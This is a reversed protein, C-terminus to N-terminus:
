FEGEVVNDRSMPLQIARPPELTAGAHRQSPTLLCDPHVFKFRHHQCQGRTPFCKPSHYRENNHVCPLRIAAEIWEHSPNTLVVRNLSFAHYTRMGESRKSVLILVSAGTEEQEPVTSVPPHTYKQGPQATGRLSGYVLQNVVYSLRGFKKM